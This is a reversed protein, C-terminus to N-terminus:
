PSACSCRAIGPAPAAPVRGLLEGDGLMTFCIRGSDKLAYAAGVSTGTALGLGAGTAGGTATSQERQTTERRFPTGRVRRSGPVRYSVPTSHICQEGGATATTIDVREVVCGLKRAVVAHAAEHYAILKRSLRPTVNKYEARARTALPRSWFPACGVSM